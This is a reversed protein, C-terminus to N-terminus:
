VKFTSFKLVCILFEDKRKMNFAKLTLVKKFYKVFQFVISFIEIIKKIDM